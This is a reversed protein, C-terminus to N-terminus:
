ASGPKNKVQMFHMFGSPGFGDWITATLHTVMMQDSKANKYRHM